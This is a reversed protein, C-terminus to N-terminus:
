RHRRRFWGLVKGGRTAYSRGRVFHDWDALEDFHCFSEVAQAVNLLTRQLVEGSRLNGVWAGHEGSQDELEAITPLFGVAHYPHFNDRYRAFQSQSCKMFFLSIRGTDVSMGKTLTDLSRHIDAGNGRSSTVIVSHALRALGVSVPDTPRPVSGDVIVIPHVDRRTATLFHIIKGIADATEPIERADLRHPCAIVRLGSELEYTSNAIARDMMRTFDEQRSIRQNSLISKLAQVYHSLDQGDPIGIRSAWKSNDYDAEIVYVPREELRGARRMASALVNGILYSLTTKGSGGATGTVWFIHSRSEGTIPSFSLTSFSSFAAEMARQELSARDSISSMYGPLGRADLSPGSIMDEGVVRAEASPGQGAAPESQAQPLTGGVETVSPPAVPQGTGVDVFEGYSAAIAVGFLGDGRSPMEPPVPSVKFSVGRSAIQEACADKIGQDLERNLIIQNEDFREGRSQPGKILFSAAGILGNKSGEFLAFEDAGLRRALAAAIVNNDPFGVFALRKM